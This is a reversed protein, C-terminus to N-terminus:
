RRKRGFFRGAVFSILVAGLTAIVLSRLGFETLKEGEFLQTSLFGGLVGGGVGLLITRLCGEKEYGTLRQALSGALFGVIVWTLLGM